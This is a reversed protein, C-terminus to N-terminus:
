SIGRQHSHVRIILFVFCTHDTTMHRSEITFICSRVVFLCWLSLGFVPTRYQCLISNTFISDLRFDFNFGMVLRYLILINDVNNPEINFKYNNFNYRNLSNPCLLLSNILRKSSPNWHWNWYQTLISGINFYSQIECKHLEINNWYQVWYKPSKQHYAV